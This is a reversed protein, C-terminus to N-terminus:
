SGGPIRKIINKNLWKEWDLLPTEQADLDIELEIGVDIKGVKSWAIRYPEGRRAGWKRGIKEVWRGFRSNIRRAAVSMGNEIYAVRPPKDKRLEVIGDVKGIKRKEKDIM